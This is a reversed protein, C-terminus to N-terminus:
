RSREKEDLCLCLIGDPVFLVRDHLTLGLGGHVFFSGSSQGPFPM